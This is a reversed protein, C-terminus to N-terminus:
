SRGTGFPDDALSLEFMLAESSGLAAAQSASRLNPLHDGLLAL